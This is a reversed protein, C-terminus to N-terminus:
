QSTANVYLNQLAPDEELTDLVKGVEEEQEETLTVLADDNPDYVVEVKEIRVGFRDQLRLAVEMVDTPPTEVVLRGEESSIDLAGADIAEELAEDVGIKDQEQFSIRGKKEFLFATPTITGGARNVIMRIDSLTRAKNDTLCEIMTAVGHPLMAEITVPELAQGGPTKGQGKAIAYEIASKVMQSKKANAIAAALRPNLAPDPGALRSATMLEHSMLTRTKSTRADAKAKDHKIKSWRNHGSPRLPTSSWHRCPLQFRWSTLQYRPIQRLGM